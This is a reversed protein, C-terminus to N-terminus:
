VEAAPIYDLSLTASARRNDTSESVEATYESPEWAHSPENETYNSEHASKESVEVGYESEQNTYESASTQITTQDFNESLEEVSKTRHTSYM